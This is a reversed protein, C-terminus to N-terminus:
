GKLIDNLNIVNYDSDNVLIPFSTVGIKKATKMVKSKDSDPFESMDKYTYSVGKKDLLGQIMKCRSCAETGILIM